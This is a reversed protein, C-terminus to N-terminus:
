QALTGIKFAALRSSARGDGGHQDNFAASGDIGCISLIAEEGGPHESIWPTLDYVGGDIASWCSSQSAHNAVQALTISKVSTKSVIPLDQTDSVASSNAPVNQYSRKKNQQIFVIGAALVIVIVGILISIIKNPSM